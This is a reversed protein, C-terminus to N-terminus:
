IIRQVASDKTESLIEELIEDTSLFYGARELDIEGLNDKKWSPWERVLKETTFVKMFSPLVGFTRMIEELTDEYAGMVKM